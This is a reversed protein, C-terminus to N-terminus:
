NEQNEQEYKFCNRSQRRTKANKNNRTSFLLM